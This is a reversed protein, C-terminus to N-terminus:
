QEETYQPKMSPWSRPARSPIMRLNTHRPYKGKGVGENSTWQLVASEMEQGINQAISTMYQM